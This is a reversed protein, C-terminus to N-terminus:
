ARDGAATRVGASAYVDLTRRALSQWGLRRRVHERGANGLAELAEPHDMAWAIRDALAEEDDVPALLVNVGDALGEPCGEGRTSLCPTGHEMASWFSTNKGSIGERFPFVALHSSLLLRSVEEDSVYGLRDLSGDLDLAAIEREIRDAYARLRAVADTHVGAAITLRLDRGQDRLRAVARLLYEVGKVPNLFGFYLARFVGEPPSWTRGPPRTISAGTAIRHLRERSLPHAGLRREDLTNTCIWGASEELLRGLPDPLDVAARPAQLNHLTAVCRAGASRALGPIRCVAPHLLYDEGHYQLAVVDPRTSDLAARVTDLCRYDWHGVARALALGDGTPEFRPAGVPQAEPARDLPGEAAASPATHAHEEETSMGTLVLVEAGAAALEAGLRRVYDGVGCRTPPYTAAIMLVRM